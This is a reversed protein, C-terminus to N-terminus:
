IKVLSAFVPRLGGQTYAAQGLAQPNGTRAVPVLWGAMGNVRQYGPSLIFATLDGLYQWYYQAWTKETYSNGNYLYSSWLITKDGCHSNSYQYSMNIM